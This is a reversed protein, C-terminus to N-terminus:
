SPGSFLTQPHTIRRRRRGKRKIEKSRKAWKVSEKRREDIWDMLVPFVFWDTKEGDQHTDKREDRRIEDSRMEDSLRAATKRKSTNHAGSRQPARQEPGSAARAGCRDKGAELFTPLRIAVARGAGVVVLVSEASWAFLRSLREHSDQDKRREKREDSTEGKFKKGSSTTTKAKRVDRKRKELASRIYSGLGVMWSSM